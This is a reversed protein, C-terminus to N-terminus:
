LITYEKYLNTGQRKESVQMKVKAGFFREGNAIAIKLLQYWISRPTKGVTVFWNLVQSDVKILFKHQLIEKGDRTIFVQEIPEALFEVEYVGANAKWVENKPLQQM